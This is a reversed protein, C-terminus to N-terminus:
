ILFATNSAAPVNMRLDKKVREQATVVAIKKRADSMAKMRDFQSPLNM